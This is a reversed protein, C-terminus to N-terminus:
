GYESLFLAYQLDSQAYHKTYWSGFERLAKARHSHKNKEKQTMEAFAKLPEDSPAFIPDFGFGTKGQEKLTIEGRVKGIFTKLSNGKGSDSFAVASCFHADRNSANKMLKLIGRTGLTRYVYSSYPGPFGKLADIFLGADEVFIPMGSKRAAETASTKAIAEVDDAQIETTDLNLMATSVGFERLLVRAEHFKHANGTVFFAIKGKKL